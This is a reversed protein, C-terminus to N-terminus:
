PICLLIGVLTEMKGSTPINRTIEVSENWDLSHSFCGRRPWPRILVDYLGLAIDGLRLEIKRKRIANTKRLQCAPDTDTSLRDDECWSCSESCSELGLSHHQLVLM